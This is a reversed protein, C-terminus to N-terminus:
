PAARQLVVGPREGELSDGTWVPRGNVFVRHMGQPRLRPQAFTSRDIITQPDFLMVDAKMGVAITGRDKLKLRAAPMSTMKKIADPLSLWKEERVFRGLVRPFTGAGRPHSTNIGGDSAIMAWPQQMFARMDDATMTHGIVGADDDQVIKIYLDVESLGEARAIEDLRKGVYHPFKPLRTIQINKGGGVDDLAEKVSAPNTWQKDPVLVKLNSSWATYPYVDATVDAGRKRAADIMAVVESTKGWVGVTGLKLHTIQVPIRAKEGIAIAERIAEMSKDAEDRVHSIYFGGHKAAVRAMAVVEETSAYSGVEYELGSSLGVAGSRMEQDVLAELRAIEAPTAPRRFDEGMVQRRLTAHGVLVAVNVTSASARRKTLYDAIPYPSSGDQGVVLPTIGQAVQTIADPDADLGETSHNHADIVGPALVLGTADVIRDTPQATVNGIDVITGRDFRVDARRLPAGTGDALQAGRIVWATATTLAPMLSEAIRDVVKRPIAQALNALAIVTIDDGGYRAIYTKFGQWSGGHRQIDRGAIRDVEFGFGYPHRRGSNLTVPTLIQQWSEPKLVARSRIGRDWAIMDRLSLYLSGDATTNLTPSVWDQNRLTGRELRYGAARHPVIDAESIIRATTMGLPKFVRDRLVDGYFSGSVKRVIIGLLQYATNSYKWQAGPTFDLTLTSAFTVLDDETYDKRYDLVGDTYDPIGSTHTLLHRVTIDRWAAPGNPFFKVLPDTLALKGDEVQLMVAAATFQKGVSGSQFITEDTVPVNHEVNALGYGKATVIAGGRIVAVAMGPIRQATMEERIITEIPDGQLADVGVHLTRVNPSGADVGVRLTRANPVAAHLPALSVTVVLAVILRVM